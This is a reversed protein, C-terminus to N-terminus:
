LKRNKYVTSPQDISSAQRVLFIGLRSPYNLKSCQADPTLVFERLKFLASFHMSPILSWSCSTLNKCRELFDLVPDTFDEDDMREFPDRDNDEGETLEINATKIQSANFKWLHKAVSGSQPWAEININQFKRSSALGDEDPYKDDNCYLTIKKSSEIVRNWDKCVLLAKLLDKVSLFAFIELLVEDHLKEITTQPKPKDTEEEAALRIKKALPFM